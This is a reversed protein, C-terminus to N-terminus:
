NYCSIAALCRRRQDDATSTVVRRPTAQDGAGPGGSDGPGCLIQSTPVVSLPM